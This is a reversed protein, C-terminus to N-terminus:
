VRGTAIPSLEARIEALLEPVDAVFGQLGAMHKILAPDNNFSLGILYLGYAVLRDKDLRRNRTATEANRARHEDFRATVEHRQFGIDESGSGIISGNATARPTVSANM